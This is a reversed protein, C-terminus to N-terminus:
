LDGLVCTNSQLSLTYEPTFQLHFHADENEAKRQRMVTIATNWDLFLRIPLPPSNGHMRLGLVVHSTEIDGSFTFNDRHKKSLVFGHLRTPFHLYLEV